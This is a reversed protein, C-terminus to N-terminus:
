AEYWLEYIRRSMSLSYGFSSHLRKKTYDKNGQEAFIAQIKGFQRKSIDPYKEHILEYRREMKQDVAKKLDKYMNLADSFETEYTSITKKATRLEVYFSIAFYSSAAFAIALIASIYIQSHEKFGDKFKASFKKAEPSDEVESIDIGESTDTAEFSDTDESNTEIDPEAREENQQSLLDIDKLPLQESDSNSDLPPSSEPTDESFSNMIKKCMKHSEWKDGLTKSILFIIIFLVVPGARFGAMLGFLANLISVVLTTLIFILFKM